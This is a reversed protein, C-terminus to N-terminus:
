EAATAFNITLVQFKPVASGADELTFDYSGRHIIRPELDVGIKIGSERVRSCFSIDEGDYRPTGSGDSIISHMFYPRVAMKVTPCNVLPLREDLTEFVSRKIATFGMGLFQAPWLGPVYFDLQSPPSDLKGILGGETRRYAYLAGLVGYESDFCHQALMEVHEPKFMIDHDIFVLVDAETQTLATQVLLARAMDIYPCGDCAVIEVGAAKLKDVCNLHDADRRGYYPIMVAYKM